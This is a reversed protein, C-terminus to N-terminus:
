RALAYDGERQEGLLRLSDGEVARDDGGLGALGQREADDGEAGADVLV